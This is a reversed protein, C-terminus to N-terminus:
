LPGLRDLGEKLERRWQDMRDRLTWQWELRQCELRLPQQSILFLQPVLDNEVVWTLAMAQVRGYDAATCDGSYLIRGTEDLLRYAITEDPLAGSSAPWPRIELRLTYRGPPLRVSSRLPTRSLARFSEPIRLQERRQRDLRQLAPPDRRRPLVAELMVSRTHFAPERIRALADYASVSLGDVALPIGEPIQSELQDLFRRAADRYRIAEKHHGYRMAMRFLLHGPIVMGSQILSPILDFRGAAAAAWFAGEPGPWLFAAPENEPRVESTRAWVRVRLFPPPIGAILPSRPIALCQVSRAPIRVKVSRIGTAIYLTSESEGGIVGFWLSTSLPFPGGWAFERPHTRIPVAWRSGLPPSFPSYLERGQESLLLPVPDLALGYTDNGGTSPPALGYLEVAHGHHGPNLRPHALPTWRYLLAYDRQFAAWAGRHRPLLAGTFVDSFGRGVAFADRIVFDPRFTRVEALGDAIDEVKYIVARRAFCTDLTHDASREVAVTRDTPGHVAIWRRAQERTDPWSFFDSIRFGQLASHCSAGLTLVGIAVARPRGGWKGSPLGLPLVAWGIVTPLFLLFEQKRLFPATLLAIALAVAPLIVLLPYFRRFRPVLFTLVIGLVTLLHMWPSLDAVHGALWLLRIARAAAPDDAYRSLSRRFEMQLGAQQRSLEARFWGWHRLAPNTWLFVLTFLLLGVVLWGIRRGPSLTPSATKKPWLRVSFPILLLPFLLFLLGFKTGAALAAALCGVAYWRFRATQLAGAWGLLTITLFFLAATDPTAYHAMEIPIPHFTWLVAAALGSWPSRTLLFGFLFLLLTALVSLTANFRRLFLQDSFSDVDPRDSVGSRYAARGLLAHVGLAATRFPRVIRFYGAPYLRGSPKGHLATQKLWQLHQPEDPHLGPDALGTTRLRWGLLLLTLLAISFGVTKQTM